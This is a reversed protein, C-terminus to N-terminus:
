APEIFVPSDTLRLSAAEATRATGDLDTVRITRESALADAAGKGWAVYFRSDARSFRVVTPAVREVILVGELRGALQKYAEFAKKKTGGAVLGGVGDYVLGTHDFYGGVNGAFAHHEILKGWMVVEVGESALLAFSKVLYDAQQGETQSAMGRPEGSYTGVETAWIEKGPFGAEELLARYTSVADIALEEEGAAKWFHLDFVDFDGGGQKILFLSECFFGVNGSGSDHQNSIGALVIRCDPCAERVAAEGALFFEAYSEPTWQRGTPMDPENGLQWHKISPNERVFAELVRQFREADGLWVPAPSVTGLTKFGESARGSIVGSVYFFGARDWAAGAELALEAELRHFEGADRLGLADLQAQFAGPNLRDEGGINLFGLEPSKEAPRGKGPLQLLLLAITLLSLLIAAIPKKDM